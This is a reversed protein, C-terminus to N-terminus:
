NYELYKINLNKTHKYKNKRTQKYQPPSHIHCYGWTPAKKYHNKIKKNLKNKLDTDREGHDPM